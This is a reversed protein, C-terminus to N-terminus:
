TLPTWSGDNNRCATGRFTQPARDVYITHTYSRCNQSGVQYPQAPTVEGSRTGSASRWEVKQGAPSYELAKYEAELARKRDADDLKAVVNASILGNGLPGIVSKAASSSPLLGGGTKAGSTSACGALAISVCVFALSIRM